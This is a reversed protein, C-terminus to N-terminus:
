SKLNGPLYLLYSPPFDFLLPNTKSEIFTAPAMNMTASIGQGKARLSLGANM